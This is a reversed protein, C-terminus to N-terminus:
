EFYPGDINGEDDEDDEGHEHGMAEDEYEGEGDEGDGGADEMMAAGNEFLYNAALEENRDCLLWAELCVQRSFGLNQLNQIQQLEAETVQIAQRGGGGQRGGAGGGGGGAALGALLQQLAQPNNGLQAMVEPSSSAVQQLLMPVLAPNSQLVQRLQSLTAADVGAAGAMDLLENANQGGGQQPQQQQQQQQPAPAQAPAQPQQPRPAANGAPGAQALAARLVSEPGFLYEAARDANNFAARLADVVQQREFGLSMLNMVSEEYASGMAVSSAANAALSSPAAAAPAAPAPTAAAPQSAPVDAAAAPVPTAAAPQAAPTAAPAAAPTAAAAAPAPAAAAAAPAATPAEAVAPKKQLKSLMIVLVANEKMGVSAVTQADTLIKGLYILKQESADGLGLESSIRQKVALITDNEQVELSHKQGKLTQVGIKM